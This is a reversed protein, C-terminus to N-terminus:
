LTSAYHFFYPNFSVIILSPKPSLYHFCARSGVSIELEWSWIKNKFTQSSRYYDRFLKRKVWRGKRKVLHHQLWHLQWIYCLSSKPVCLESRTSNSSPIGLSCKVLCLGQRSLKLGSRHIKASGTLTHPAGLTFLLPSQMLVAQDSHSPLPVLGLYGVPCNPVSPPCWFVHALWDLYYVRVRLLFPLALTELSIKPVPSGSSKATLPSHIDNRHGLNSSPTQTWYILPSCLLSLFFRESSGPYSRSICGLHAHHPCAPQHLSISPDDLLLEKNLM